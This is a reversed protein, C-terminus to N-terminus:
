RIRGMQRLMYLELYERFADRSRIQKFAENHALNEAYRQIRDETPPTLRSTVRMKRLFDRVLANVDEVLNQKPVKAVLPNWEEILENLRHDVSPADGVYKQQLTEVADRFTSLRKKRTEQEASSSGLIKAGVQNSSTGGGTNAKTRKKGFLGRFMRVFFYLFPIAQWFPLLLRADDYLKKRQLDLIEAYSRLSKARRDFMNQVEQRASEPPNTEDVALFLLPYSLMSYLLPYESRLRKKVDQDFAEDDQMAPLKQDQRLSEAWLRVYEGRFETSAQHLRSLTLRIVAEKPVIYEKKAPTRVRILQPLGKSEPDPKVKSLVHERITGENCRRTLPVGKDDKFQVIEDLTHAYPERRIQQDVLRLASEQDRSKQLVSKYYVSLYGILYAAQCYGHEEILKDKKEAFEKIIASSLQTWFHFTFETPEKIMELAQDPSTSIKAITDRIVVNRQPFAVGLRSQMYKANRENRLYRRIKHLTLPVIAHPLLDTTLLMSDINDPFLLRLLVNRAAAADTLWEMFQSKVEVSTVLHGPIEMGLSSESPFPIDPRQEIAAYSKRVALNYYELFTVQRIASDEYHLHCKGTKELELLHAVMVQEPQEELDELTPNESSFREAYRRAYEALNRFDVTLTEIKKTYAFLIRLVDQPSSM